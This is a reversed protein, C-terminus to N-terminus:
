NNEDKLEKILEKVLAIRAPQDLKQALKHAEIYDYMASTNVAVDPKADILQDCCHELSWPRKSCDMVYRGAELGLERLANACNVPIASDVGRTKLLYDMKNM